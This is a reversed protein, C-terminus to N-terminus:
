SDLDSVSRTAMTSGTPIVPLPPKVSVTPNVPPTPDATGASAKTYDADDIM